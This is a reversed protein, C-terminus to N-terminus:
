LREQFHYVVLPKCTKNCPMIESGSAVDYSLVLIISGVSIHRLVMCFDLKTDEM